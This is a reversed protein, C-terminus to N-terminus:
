IKKYRYYKIIWWLLILHYLIMVLIAIFPSIKQFGVMGIVVVPLIMILAYGKWNKGSKKVHLEEHCHPCTIEGFKGVKNLSKYAYIFSIQKQCKPCQQLSM